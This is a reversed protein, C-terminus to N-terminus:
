LKARGKFTDMSDHVGMIKAFYDNVKTPMVGRLIFLSNAIWPLLVVSENQRIATLIRWVVWHQDLIPLLPNSSKVGDFM